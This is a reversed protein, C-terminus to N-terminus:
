VLANQIRSFRGKKFHLKAHESQTMVELNDPDNNRCDGDKHHVIEGRLLCRGIKQEAVFRHLHGKRFKVYTKGEGRVYRQANGIKDASKKGVGRNACLRSCYLGRGIRSPSLRFQFDKGCESCTKQLWSGM